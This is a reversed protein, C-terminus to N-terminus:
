FVDMATLQVTQERLGPAVAVGYQMPDPVAGTTDPHVFAWDQYTTDGDIDGRGVIAFSSGFVDVSYRFYVSGEPHFGLEEFNVWGASTPLWQAKYNSALGDPTPVADLFIDQHAFYSFECSVIARIMVSAEASRSRYQYKIFNPIAISALIGIIAVVIMLEILTFGGLRARRTRM